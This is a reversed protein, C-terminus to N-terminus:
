ITFVTFWGVCCDYKLDIVLLKSSCLFYVVKCLDKALNFFDVAVPSLLLFPALLAQLLFRKLKNSISELYLFRILRKDSYLPLHVDFIIM